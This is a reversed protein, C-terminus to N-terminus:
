PRVPDQGLHLVANPTVGGGAAGRHGGVAVGAPVPGRAAGEAAGRHGGVAVGAPVPGSAAVGAVGRVWGGAMDVGTEAPTGRDPGTSGQASAGGVAAGGNPGGVAAGGNPGGGCGPYPGGLPPGYGTPGGNPGAAGDDDLDVRDRTPTLTPTTPM